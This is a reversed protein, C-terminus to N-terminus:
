EGSEATQKLYQNRAYLFNRMYRSLFLINAIHGLIGLPSTFMFTDVMLTGGLITIFEHRHTLSKFAGRMMEDVFCHPRDFVVIKATLRQRVGFHVAEWTVEDGLELLGQTVGGVARETTRATSYVHVDVDRALDFCREIPAHVRTELRITPV